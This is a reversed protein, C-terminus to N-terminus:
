FLGNVLSRNEVHQKSTVRRPGTCFYRNNVFDEKKCLSNVLILVCPVHLLARVFPKHMTNLERRRQRRRRRWRTHGRRASSPMFAVFPPRSNIAHVRPSTFFSRLCRGCVPPFCPLSVMFANRTRATTTRKEQDIEQKHTPMHHPRVAVVVVVVVFGM